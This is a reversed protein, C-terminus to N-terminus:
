GALLGADRDFIQVTSTLNAVLIMGGVQYSSSLQGQVLSWGEEQLRSALVPAYRCAPLCLLWSTTTKTQLACYLALESWPLPAGSAPPQNSWHELCAHAPVTLVALNPLVEKKAQLQQCAVAPDAHHDSVTCVAARRHPGWDACCPAQPFATRLHLGPPQPRTRVQSTHGATSSSVAGSGSLCASKTM